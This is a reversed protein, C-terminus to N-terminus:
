LLGLPVQPRRPRESASRSRHSPAPAFWSARKGIVPRGDADWAQVDMALGTCQIEGAYVPLMPNGAHLLFHHRHRRQHQCAARRAQGRRVDLPVVGRLAAFRDLLHHLASLDHERGPRLGAKQCMGLFKPSTGFLTVRLKEALQWLRKADPYAPNGEFLVIATGIGLASVLWNWMMWGCTTFYFSRDGRRLDCHLMLEKMHQLLTGGHGHVICKPIGTTGSSYMIFLPHDFPVEEFTLPPAARDPASGSAGM